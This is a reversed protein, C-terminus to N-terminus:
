PASGEPKERAERERKLEELRDMLAREEPTAREYYGRVHGLIAGLRQVADQLVDKYPHLDELENADEIMKVLQGNLTRGAKKAKKAVERRLEERIRLKLQVIKTPKRVMGM